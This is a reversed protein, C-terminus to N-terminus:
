FGYLSKLSNYNSEVETDSLTRNYAIFASVSGTWASAAYVDDGFLTIPTSNFSLTNSASSDTILTSTNKIIDRASTSARFTWLNWSNAGGSAVYVRQYNTGDGAQDFYVTGDSWTLHAFIARGGSDTGNYFRFAGSQTTSAVNCLIQVTYGTETTIGLSNSAPGYALQTSSFYPHSGLTYSPTSNFSFHNNNGSVDEWTNGGSYRRADLFFKLSDGSISENNPWVGISKLSLQDDLSWFGGRQVFDATSDSAEYFSNYGKFRSM